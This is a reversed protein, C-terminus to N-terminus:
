APGKGAEVDRPNPEVIVVRTAWGLAIFARQLAALTEYDPATAAVFTDNGPCSGDHFEISGIDGYDKAASEGKAELEDFVTELYPVARAGPCDQRYWALEHDEQQQTFDNYEDDWAQREEELRVLHDEDSEDEDQPYEEEDFPVRLEDEDFAPVEDYKTGNVCLEFHHASNCWFANIVDYKPKIVQGPWAPLLKGGSAVKTEAVAKFWDATFIALGGFTLTKLFERRNSSM